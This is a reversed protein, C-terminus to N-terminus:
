IYYHTFGGACRCGKVQESFFWQQFFFLFDTLTRHVPIWTNSKYIHNGIGGGRGKKMKIKGKRRSGGWCDGGEGVGETINDKRRCELSTAVAVVVMAAAAAIKAAAARPPRRM